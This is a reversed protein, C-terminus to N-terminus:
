VGARAMTEALTFTKGVDEPKPEVRPIFDYAMVEDDIQGAFFKLVAVWGRVREQAKALAGDFRNSLQPAHKHLLKGLLAVDAGELTERGEKMQALVALLEKSVSVDAQEPLSERVTIEPTVTVSLTLLHELRKIADLGSERLGRLRRNRDNTQARSSSAALSQAAGLVASTPGSWDQVSGDM